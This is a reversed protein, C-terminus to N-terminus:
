KRRHLKVSFLGGQKSGTKKEQLLGLHVGVLDELAHADAEGQQDSDVTTTTSPAEASLSAESGAGSGQHLYKSFDDEVASAQAVSTTSTTSADKDLAFVDATHADDKLVDDYVNSPAPTTADFSDSVQGTTTSAPAADDLSEFTNEVSWDKVQKADANEANESPVLVAATTTTTTSVDDINASDGAPMTAELSEPAQATTSAPAADDLSDFTNEISWDKVQTASSESNGPEFVAVTTTTTSLRTVDDSSSSDSSSSSGSSDDTMLGGELHMSTAQSLDEAEAQAGVNAHGGGVTTIIDDYSGSEGAHKAVAFGVRSQKRDFITVFRRLFPDGFIFV